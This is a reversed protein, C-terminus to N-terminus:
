GFNVKIQLPLANVFTEAVVQNHKKGGLTQSTVVWSSSLVGSAYAGGTDQGQVLYLGANPGITSIRGTTPNLGSAAPWNIVFTGTENNTTKSAAPSSLQAFFTGTGAQAGNQGSCGTITGTITETVAGAAKKLSPTYHVTGSLSTCQEVTSYGAQATGALSASAVAALALATVFTYKM